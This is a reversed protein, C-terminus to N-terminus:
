YLEPCYRGDNALEEFKALAQDKSIGESHAISNYIADKIDLETQGAQGCLYFFGNKNILDDYVRAANEGIKHQVYVKKTTDRSFAPHLETLVGDAQYQELEEGFIYDKAKYRCGYFLWMPGTKIGNNQMWKREQVFARFPALGTGLGAMIMPTMPSEPFKFTGSTITCAVDDGARLSRIYNTATGACIKGSPTKWENIVVVLEVLQPGVFRPSSAISYLRPKVPPILTILHEVSPKAESSYKLLVDGFTAGEATMASYM